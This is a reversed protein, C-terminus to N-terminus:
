KNMNEIYMPLVVEVYKKLFEYDTSDCESPILIKIPAKKGPIPISMEQYINEDTITRPLVIENNDVNAIEKEETINTKEDGFELIGNKLLNLEKCNELFKDVVLDKVSKTISFEPDLLLNSLMLSNPLARGKFRNILKEYVPPKCFAEILLLEVNDDKPYLIDNALDTLEITGKSLSILGYQRAASLKKSFSKTSSSVGMTSAVLDVSAKKGGLSDITKIFTEITEKLTFAPYMASKEKSIINKEETM